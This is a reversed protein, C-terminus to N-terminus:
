EDNEKEYLYALITLLLFWWLLMTDAGSMASEAEQQCGHIIPLAPSFGTGPVTHIGQQHVRPSAQPDGTEGAWTSPKGTAPLGEARRM